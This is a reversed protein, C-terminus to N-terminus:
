TLNCSLCPLSFFLTIM